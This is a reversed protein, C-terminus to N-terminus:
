EDAARAQSKLNTLMDSLSLNGAVPETFAIEETVLEDLLAELEESGGVLEAARRYNLEALEAAVGEELSAFEGRDVREQLDAADEASLRVTVPPTNLPKDM